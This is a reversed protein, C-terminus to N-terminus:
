DEDGTRYRNCFRWADACMQDVDLAAEWGLIRKARSPDALSVAVDGSRRSAIRHTIKQGIVRELASILELVSIGQGTGLNFVETGTKNATYDLAMLHGRALDDVHIYDRVGTGDPTDYDDGFVKLIDRKGLAVELILPMLNNPIGNPNEGILGSADAGIPNFYRLLAASRGEGAASWDRIIDEIFLKTRGYPNSPYTRADESFPPASAEGYVTASSSFVIQRCGVSDMQNLLKLTGSINNEYYMVPNDVSEAVAKLGACHIVASPKTKAFVKELSPSDRLDLEAVDLRSETLLELSDITSPSSNCFNDIIVINYGAKSLKVAVHSGIYGAGGTVIVTNNSHSM